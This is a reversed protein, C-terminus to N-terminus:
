KVNVSYASSGSVTNGNADGTGMVTATELGPTASRYATTRFAKQAGDGAVSANTAVQETSGNPFMVTANVDTLPCGGPNEGQQPTTSVYVKWRVAQGSRVTQHNASMSVEISPACTAGSAPADIVTGALYMAVMFFGLLVVTMFIGLPHRTGM